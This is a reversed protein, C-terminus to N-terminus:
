RGGCAKGGDVKCEMLQMQGKLEDIRQDRL